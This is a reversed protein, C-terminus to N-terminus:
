RNNRIIDELEKKLQLSVHGRVAGHFKKQNDYSMKLCAQQLAGTVALQQILQPNGEIKQIFKEPNFDHANLISNTYDNTPMIEEAFYTDLYHKVFTQSFDGNYEDSDYRIGSLLGWESVWIGSNDKLWEIPQVKVWFIDGQNVYEYTSVRLKNLHPNATIRIYKEGDLEYEPCITKDFSMDGQHITKENDVPSLDFTYKKGTQLLNGSTYLNELRLRLWEPAVTQPYEGYEVKEVIKGCSPLRIKKTNGPTLKSAVSAPLVPRIASYRNSSNAYSADGDFAMLVIQNCDFRDSIKAPSSLFWFGAYKGNVEPMSRVISAGTIIALDSMGVSTGYKQIIDLSQKEQLVQEPTLFGINFYSM